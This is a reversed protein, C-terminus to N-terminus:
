VPIEWNPMKRYILQFVEAVGAMTVKLLTRTIMGFIVTVIGTLGYLFIWSTPDTISNTVTLKHNQGLAVKTSVTTFDEYYKDNPDSDGINTYTSTKDINCFKVHSIYGWPDHSYAECYGSPDEGVTIYDTKIKTSNGYGNQVYLTVTYSGASLFKVCPNNSASDTGNLYAITDPTFTWRRSTDVNYSANFFDVEQGIRASTISAYFDSSPAQHNSIDGSLVLSYAQRGNQLNGTHSIKIMFVHGSDPTSIDIQEVNDVGNIGKTAADSPNDKDLKWPYYVTSTNTDTLTLNLDNVLITDPPDVAADPIQGPPDTWVLTARLSTTDTLTIYRIMSDGDNLVGEYIVDTTDDEAIKLAANKTNMLGGGYEYDPGDNNGAEDATNIILAKLTASRMHNGFTNHYQQILLAASGTVSPASMSTGSLSAYSADNANYTSYLSSGNAVIDPKVRGDDAPGCSSFGTLVVDSPQSYGATIDNVAGVTLINKSIGLQDICDWPGDPDHGTGTDDRDNGASKVILYYPADYAIMDWSQSTEDYFGFKYDEANSVTTDGWWTSGSWGRLYGYSHNSILAGIAAESAMEADDYNWDFDRLSAAPAMGKAAAKVGSAMITGAVHTSHYHSGSGDFCTVRGGFEQHSTRVGGADWERPTVGSGDLSLGAGGGSYVKNTSITKASNANDAIYYEPFGRKDIFQLEITVGASDKRLIYGKVKHLQILQQKQANEIAYKENAYRKLKGYNTVIQSFVNYTSAITFLLVFFLKFYTIKTSLM